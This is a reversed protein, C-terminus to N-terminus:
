ASSPMRSGRQDRPSPSTYLLCAESLDGPSLGPANAFGTETPNGSADPSLNALLQGREDLGLRADPFAELLIDAREEDNTAFALLSITGRQQVSLGERQDPRLEPFGLPNREDGTIVERLRDGAQLQFNTRANIDEVKRTADEVSGEQPPPPVSAADAANQQFLQLQSFVQQEEEPSLTGSQVLEAAQQAQEPSTIM